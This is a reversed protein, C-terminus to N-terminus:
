HKTYILGDVKVCKKVTGDKNLFKDKNITLYHTAGHGFKIESKTPQRSYEIKSKIGNWGLKGATHLKTVVELNYGISELENFLDKYETPTAIKCEKAYELSVATHQGIHAYGTRNSDLKEPGSYKEFPFLATIQRKFDESTDKLFVVITKYKDKKM